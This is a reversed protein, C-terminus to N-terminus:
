DSDEDLLSIVESGVVSGRFSMGGSREREDRLLNQYERKLIRVVKLSSDRRWLGTGGGVIEQEFAHLVEQIYRQKIQKQESDTEDEEDFDDDILARFERKMTNIKRTRDEWLHLESHEAAEPACLGSKLKNLYKLIFAQKGHRLREDAQDLSGPRLIKKEEESKISMSGRPQPQSNPAWEDAAISGGANGLDIDQQQRSTSDRAEEAGGQGNIGGQRLAAIAVAIADVPEDPELGDDETESMSRLDATSARRKAARARRLVEEHDTRLREVGNDDVEDADNPLDFDAPHGISGVRAAKQPRHDLRSSSRHRKSRSLRSASTRSATQSASSAMQNTTSIQSEEDDYHQTNDDNGLGLEVNAVSASNSQRSRTNTSSTPAPRVPLLSLTRTQSEFHSRTRRNDDADRQNARRAETHLPPPPVGHSRYHKPRDRVDKWQGCASCQFEPLQASDRNRIESGRSLSGVTEDEEQDTSASETSTRRLASQRQVTSTETGRLHVTGAVSESGSDAIVGLSRLYERTGYKFIFTAVLPDKGAYTGIYNEGAM